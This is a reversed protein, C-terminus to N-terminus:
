NPHRESLAEQVLETNSFVKLHVYSVNVSDLDSIKSHQESFVYKM